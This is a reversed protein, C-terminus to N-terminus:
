VSIYIFSEQEWLLNTENLSCQRHITRNKTVKRFGKSLSFHLFLLFFIPIMLFYLATFTKCSFMFIYINSFYVLLKMTVKNNTIRQCRATSRFREFARCGRVCDENGKVLM